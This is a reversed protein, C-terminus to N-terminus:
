SFRCVFCPVCVLRVSFSSLLPSHSGFHSSGSAVYGVCVPMRRDKQIQRCRLHVNWQEGKVTYEGALVIFIFHFFAPHVSHVIFGSFVKKGGGPM